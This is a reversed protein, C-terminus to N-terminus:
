GRADHCYRTTTRPAKPWNEEAPAAEKLFLGRQEVDRAESRAAFFTHQFAKLRERLLDCEVTRVCLQM